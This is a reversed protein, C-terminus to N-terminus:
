LSKNASIEAPLRWGRPTLIRMFPKDDRNIARGAAVLLTLDSVPIPATADRLANFVLRQLEGKFAQFRPPLRPKIDDIDTTPDFLRIAADIHRRQRLDRNGLPLRPDTAQPGRLDIWPHRLIPAQLRGM